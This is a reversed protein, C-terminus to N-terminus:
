MCSFDEPVWHIIHETDAEHMQKFEPQDIIMM